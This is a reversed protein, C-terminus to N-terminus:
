RVFAIVCVHKQQLLERQILSKQIPVLTLPAFTLFNDAGSALSKAAVRVVEYCNEIRIGFRGTEYYGPEITLVMGARLRSSEDSAHRIGIGAPGEHVNLFHGVGHGVGHNFNYGDPWLSLRPVSDLRIGKLKAFYIFCYM